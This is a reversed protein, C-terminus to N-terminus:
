RQKMEKLRLKEIEIGRNRHKETDREEFMLNECIMDVLVQRVLEGMYMGSIMKEFIQQGPNLSEADVLLDWKTRIFDLEGKM